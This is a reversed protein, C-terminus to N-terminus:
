NWSTGVGVPGPSIDKVELIKDMWQPRNAPNVVYDFAYEVPVKITCKDEVHAM